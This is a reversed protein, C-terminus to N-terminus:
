NIRPRESCKLKKRYKTTITRLKDEITIGLIKIIKRYERIRKYHEYFSLYILEQVM